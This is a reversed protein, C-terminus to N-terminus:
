IRCILRRVARHFNVSMKREPPVIHFSRQNGARGAPDPPGYGSFQRMLPPGHPDVIQGALVLGSFQHLFQSGVATRGGGKLRVHSVSGGHRLHHSLQPLGEARHLQHHVVGAHRPLTQKLVNGILHPVAIKGHIQAAGPIGDLGNQGM